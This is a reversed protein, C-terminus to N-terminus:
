AVSCRPRLLKSLRVDATSVDDVGRRERLALARRGRSFLPGAEVAAPLASMEEVARALGALSPEEM